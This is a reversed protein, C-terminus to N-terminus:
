ETVKQEFKEINRRILERFYTTANPMGYHKAIKNFKEKEEKNIRIYLIADLKKKEKM